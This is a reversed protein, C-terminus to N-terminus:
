VAWKNRLYSEVTTVESTLLTRSYLVLEGMKGSFLSTGAGDAGVTAGTASASSYNMNNADTVTSKSVGGARFECTHATKDVRWCMCLFANNTGNFNSSELVQRFSGDNYVFQMVNTSDKNFIYNAGSANPGKVLFARNASDTWNVLAGVMFFTMGTGIQTSVSNAIAMSQTTGNFTLAQKGNQANTTVTPQNGGTGQLANNTNGSKDNWQSAGTAITITTADAADLWLALGSLSTPAFGGLAAAGSAFLALPIPM